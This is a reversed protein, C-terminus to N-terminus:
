VMKELENKNNEMQLKYKPNTIESEIRGLGKQLEINQADAIMPVIIYSVLLCLLIIIRQFDGMQMLGFM